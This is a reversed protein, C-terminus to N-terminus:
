SGKPFLRSGTNSNTTKISTCIAVFFAGFCGAFGGLLGPPKLFLAILALDHNGLGGLVHAKRQGQRVAYM